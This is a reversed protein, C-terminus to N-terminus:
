TARGNQTLSVLHGEATEVDGVAPEESEVEVVGDGDDDLTAEEATEVRKLVKSVKLTKSGKQIKGINEDM